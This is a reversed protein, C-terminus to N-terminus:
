DLPVAHCIFWLSPDILVSGYRGATPFIAGSSGGNTTLLPSSSGAPCHSNLQTVHPFSHRSVHLSWRHCALAECHKSDVSGSFQTKWGVPFPLLIRRVSLRRPPCSLLIMFTTWGLTGLRCSSSLPQIYPSRTNPTPHGWAADSM